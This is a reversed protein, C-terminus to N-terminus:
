YGYDRAAAAGLRDSVLKPLDVTRGFTVGSATKEGEALSSEAAELVATTYFGLAMPTFAAAKQAEPLRGNRLALAQQRLTDLRYSVTVHRLEFRM